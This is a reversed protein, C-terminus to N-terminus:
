NKLNSRNISGYIVPNDLDMYKAERYFDFAPQGGASTYQYLTVPTERKINKLHALQKTTNKM